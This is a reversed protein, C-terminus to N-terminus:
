NKHDWKNIKM